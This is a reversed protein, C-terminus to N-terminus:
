SQRQPWVQPFVANIMADGDEFDLSGQPLLARVKPNEMFTGPRADFYADDGLYRLALARRRLDSRTNGGSFHL